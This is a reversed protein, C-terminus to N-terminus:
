STMEVLQERSLEGSLFKNMVDFTRKFSTYLGYGGCSWGNEYSGGNPSLSFCVDEDLTVYYANHGKYYEKPECCPNDSKTIGHEKFFKRLDM